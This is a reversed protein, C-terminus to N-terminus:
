YRTWGRGYLEETGLGEAALQGMLDGQHPHSVRLIHRTAKECPLVSPVKYSWTARKLLVEAAKAWPEYRTRPFGPRKARVPAPAM